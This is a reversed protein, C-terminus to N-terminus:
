KRKRKETLARWSEHLSKVILRSEELMEEHVAEIESYMPEISSWYVPKSPESLAYKILLAKLRKHPLTLEVGELLHKVHAKACVKIHYCNDKLYSYHTTTGKSTSSM